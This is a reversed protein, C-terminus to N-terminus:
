KLTCIKVIKNLPVVLLKRNEKYTTDFYTAFLLNFKPFSSFGESYFILVQSFCYQLTLHDGM